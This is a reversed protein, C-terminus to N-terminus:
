PNGKNLKGAKNLFEELEKAKKTGILIKKGSHLTTQLGMNGSVNYATGNAFAFRWGWGGYEFIPSYKRVYCLHIEDWKIQKNFGLPSFKVEIGADNITTELKLYYFLVMVAIIIFIAPTNYTAYICVGFITWLWWQSFKQTERFEM